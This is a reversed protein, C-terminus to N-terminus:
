RKNRYLYMTIPAFIIILIASSLLVLGMEGVSARGRMLGRVATTLISVPNANVFARLWAPMTAPDVFINSAFTFPFLLTMSIGMVSKPTQLLLGIVTFIWSLSFAFILILVIGLVIGILGGSPRFGLILGLIIVIISAITYRFADAILAGVLPSPSWIPLSRFRDFTGQSIDTNLAVGTYVTTFVVTQVLIGPLLFQLYENTSGA